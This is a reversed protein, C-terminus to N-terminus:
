LFLSWVWNVATHVLAAPTLRGTLVYARGYFWGAISALVFYVGVMPPNDLHAAGFVLSSLVLARTPNAVHDAMFRHIVGRFLLEEPMGTFFFISIAQGVADALSPLALRPHLFGTVIGIGLGFPMFYLFQRAAVGLERRNVALGFGVQGLRGSILLLYLVMVIAYVHFLSFLPFGVRPLGGFEVSYWLYMVGLLLRVGNWNGRALWVFLAPLLFAGARLAVEIAPGQERGLPPTVLPVLLAGWGLIMDGDRWPRGDRWALEVPLLLFALALLADSLSLRGLAGGYGLYLVWLALPFAYVRAPMLQVWGWLADQGRVYGAGLYLTVLLAWVSVAAGLVAGTLQDAALWAFLATLVGVWAVIIWGRDSRM